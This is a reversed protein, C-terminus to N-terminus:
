GSASVAAGKPPVYAVRVPNDGTEVFGALAQKSADVIQAPYHCCELLVDCTDCVYISPQPCDAITAIYKGGRKSSRYTEGYACQNSTAPNYPIGPQVTGAPILQATTSLGQDFRQFVTKMNVFAFGSLEDAQADCTQPACSGCQPTVPSGNTGNALRLPARHTTFFFSSYLCISM